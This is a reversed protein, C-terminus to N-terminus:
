RTCHARDSSSRREAQRALALMLLGGLLLASSSPEPVPSFILPLGSSTTASFGAPLTIAASGSNYFDVTGELLAPVFLNMEVAVKLPQGTYNFAVVGNFTQSFAGLTSVQGVASLVNFSFPVGIAMSYNLFSGTPPDVKAGASVIGDLHLSLPLNITGKATGAPVTITWQDSFQVQAAAMSSGFGNGSSSARLGVSGTAASGRVEASASSGNCATSRDLHFNDQPTNGSVLASVNCNGSGGILSVVGGINAKAEAGGTVGIAACGLTLTALVSRTNM